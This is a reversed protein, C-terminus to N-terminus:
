KEAKLEDVALDFVKQPSIKNENLYRSVEKSIRLSIQINKRERRQVEKTKMKIKGGYKNVKNICLM